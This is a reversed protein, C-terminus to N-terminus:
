TGARERWTCVFLPQLTKSSLDPMGGGTMGWEDRRDENPPADDFQTGVREPMRWLLRGNSDRVELLCSEEYTSPIPGTWFGMMEFDTVIGTPHSRTFRANYYDNGWVDVKDTAQSYGEINEIGAESFPGVADIVRIRGDREEVTLVIEEPGDGSRIRALEDEGDALQEEQERLMEGLTRINRQLRMRQEAMAKRRDGDASSEAQETAQLKTIARELQTLTTEIHFRRSRVFDEAERETRGALFRVMWREGTRQYGKYDYDYGVSYLLAHFAVTVARATRVEEVRGPTPMPEPGDYEEPILLFDPKPEERHAPTLDGRDSALFSSRAWTWGGAILAVVLMAMGAARVVLGRRGDRIVGAVDGAPVDIGDAFSRFKDRLHDDNV